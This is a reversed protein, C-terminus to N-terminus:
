LLANVLETWEKELTLDPRKKGARRYWYDASWLDGEKRHLYAHVWAADSGELGDVLSHAKHWDGKRDYWLASAVEHLGMPPTTQELSEFFAKQDMSLMSTLALLHWHRM